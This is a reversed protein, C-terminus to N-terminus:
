NEGRISFPRIEDGAASRKLKWSREESLLEVLYNIEERSKPLLKLYKELMYRGWERVPQQYLNKFQLHTRDVLEGIYCKIIDKRPAKMVEGCELCRRGKLFEGVWVGENLTMRRCRFCYGEVAGYKKVRSSM